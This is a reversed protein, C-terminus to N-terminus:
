QCAYAYYDKHGQTEYPCKFLFPDVRDIASEIDTVNNAYMYFSLPNVMNHVSLAYTTYQRSNYLPVQIIVIM